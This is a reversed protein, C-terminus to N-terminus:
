ESRTGGAYNYQGDEVVRCSVTTASPLQFPPETWPMVPEVLQRWRRWADQLYFAVIPIVFPLFHARVRMVIGYNAMTLATGVVLPLLAAPLIVIPRRHRHGWRWAQILCFTLILYFLGDMGAVVWAPGQWEWLFPGWLERAVNRLLGIPSSNFEWSVGSVRLTQSEASNSAIGTALGGNLFNGWYEMPIRSFTVAGLLAGVGSLILLRSRTRARSLRRRSSDALLYAVVLGAGVLLVLQARTVALALTLGFLLLLGSRMRGRYVLSLGVVVGSLLFLAFGERRLWPAWMLFPPAVAGLWAATPASARFAFNRSSVAMMTPITAMLVAILMLGLLPNVGFLYYLAGVVVTISEKGFGVFVSSTQSGFEWVRAQALASAHYTADDAVLGFNVFIFVALVTQLALATVTQPVCSERRAVLVCILLGLGLTTTGALWVTPGWEYANASM